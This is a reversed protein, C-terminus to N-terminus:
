DSRLANLLRSVFPVLAPNLKDWAVDTPVWAVRDVEPFSRVKGSRPPWELEFHNSTALEPDCDVEAGYAVVRKGSRLTVEGLPMTGAADVLCGTEEAFERIAAGLLDEGPEVLGKPLSWAGQDKNAWFPGGPHAILVELDNGSGRYALIGASLQGAVAVGYV